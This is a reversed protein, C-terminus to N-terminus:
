KKKLFFIYKGGEEYSELLENGTQKAFAEFDKVSGPDTAIVKLVKGSEMNALAKKTRLVPLPCNLGSADLEQDFEVM